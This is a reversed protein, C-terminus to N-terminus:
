RSTVVGLCVVESRLLEKGTTDKQDIFFFYHGSPVLNGLDDRMDWGLSVQVKSVGQLQAAGVVAQGTGQLYGARSYVRYEIWTPTYVSLITSVTRTDPNDQARASFAPCRSAMDATIVVDPNSAAPGATSGESTEGCGLLIAAHLGVVAAIAARGLVNSRAQHGTNM